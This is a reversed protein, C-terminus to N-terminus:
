IIDLITEVSLGMREAIEATTYGARDMQIVKAETNSSIKQKERPLCLEKLRREDTNKIVDELLTKNVAGAQIAEWEKNTIDVMQKKAGVALRATSIAQGKLKKLSEFDSYLEPNDNKIMEVKKNALLQAQREIPANQEAAIVKRKLSEVENAYTKAAEKSQYLDGVRLSELRARDGLKKMSTAYEAYVREMRTGGGESMLSYPDNEYGKTSKQTAVEEKWGVIEGNKKIPKHKILKDKDAPVWIKEGTEPDIKYETKRKTVYEPSKSKSILTSAGGSAKGQWKLKLAPIGLEQEALRIDLGHKFSDVAIMSYKTARALEDPDTCGKLTMDTLLNTAKGMEMGRQSKTIYTLGGLKTDYLKHKKGTGDVFYDGPKADKPLNMKYTKTDFNALGEIPAQTKFNYGRTPIVLVTDGDFDAGSLQEATKSNIGVADIANGIDKKAREVNNNVRLRPIEFLGGHPYRILIVEEGQNYNPAYIEGDRIEPFPLIVHSRQRPFAAGKLDVAAADCEDSFSKLLKQKIVPNTYSMIEDFEEQRVKADLDLQRKAVSPLQKSLMQAAISKKWGGINGEENVINLASLQKNGDADTYHRQTLTLKEEEKLSAGFPNSPDAGPIQPKFVKDFSAGRKKNTNYVCDYGEPIDDNYIAVGKMYSKQGEPGDVGIRVQAWHANGLSMDPVGRRLEITGDKDTGGEDGYRIYVRKHDINKVPEKATFTAGGDESYEFPLKIDYLHNMLEKRTTGPKALVKVKTYGMGSAQPIEMTEVVYGDLQVGIVAKKLKDNTIGLHREVGKGVDVYGDREVCRKLSDGIGTLSQKEANEMAKLASRVSSENMELKKGIATNSYGKDKLKKIANYRARQEAENDLAKKTRLEDISLGFNRAIEVESLGQEKLEAVRQLFGGHRQYKNEGSGWPYRGSHRPTGYHMIEDDNDSGFILDALEDYTRM